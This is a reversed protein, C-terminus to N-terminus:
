KDPFMVTVSYSNDFKPKGTPNAKIFVLKGQEGEPVKDFELTVKFPVFDETMWKGQATAIGIALINGSDDYLKVPFSGEFFWTGRAKGKVTFPSTITANPLPQDVKILDSAEVREEIRRLNITELMDRIRKADPKNLRGTQVIHDGESLNCQKLPIKDGTQTDYCVTKHDMVQVQAYIFGYDSWNEPPNEPRIFYAWILGSELILLKSDVLNINFNLDLPDEKSEFSAYESYPLETALGKPWIAIYSHQPGEHVGLISNLLSGSGKKFINVTYNGTKSDQREMVIWNEPLQLSVDYMSNQYTKFAISKNTDNNQNQHRNKKVAGSNGCASILVVLSIFLIIKKPCM